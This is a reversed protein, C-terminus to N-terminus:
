PLARVSGNTSALALARDLNELQAFAPKIAALFAARQKEPVPSAKPLEMALPNIFKGNRIVRFDLHPGTAMGSMGVRGITQGQKVWSGARLGREYSNLHGYTTTYTGNHQIKIFRGYGAQWGLFTIRGDGIASVPTGRPAAYDVGLHPRYTKLIPHFRRLSFSSSIHSYRLPSKLFSKKLSNGERDYYCSQGDGQDFLFAEHTKGGTVFRAALIRGDRVFKGKRYLREYVLSVRDGPQIDTLFDIDWAFIESVNLITQPTVGATRAATYFSYEVEFQVAAPYTTLTVPREKAQWGNEANELTVVSEYQKELEVKCVRDNEPEQYIRICDGPSLRRLDIKERACVALDAVQESELGLRLMIGAFTDGSKLTASLIKFEPPQEAQVPPSPVPEPEAVQVPVEVKPPSQPTITADVINPSDTPIYFLAVTVALYLSIGLATKLKM